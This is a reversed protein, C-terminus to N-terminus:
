KKILDGGISFKHKNDVNELYGILQISPNDIGLLPKEGIGEFPMFVNLIVKEGPKIDIKNGNTEVKYENGKYATQSTKIPFSVFVNNQKIVFDSGNLLNISYSIGEKSTQKKVLELKIKNLDNTSFAVKNAKVCGAMLIFTLLILSLYKTKM